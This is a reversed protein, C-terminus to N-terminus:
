RYRRPYDGDSTYQGDPNTDSEDTARIRDNAAGATPRFIDYQDDDEDEGSESDDKNFRIARHTTRDM